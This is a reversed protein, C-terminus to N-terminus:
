WVRRCPPFRHAADGALIVRNGCSLFNEAVEAHMVWPKIDVVNIDALEQGVLKCIIEFIKSSFDELRQQPPYFPIQLVFEGERLDHAVLVGIAKENFIFFLMGPRENILYQGLEQSIFHVSILKQLDKEGKMDIGMLKRVTSGAGDTGVLFQCRINKQTSKGEGHFSAKVTVFDNSPQIAICEHGMQLQRESVFDDHMIRRENNEIHFGLEKLQECMLRTLKYQSFHAVSVPSVVHDFDESRMHDVSGIISGTLSTCYIFKQWFEVPPQSRLVEEALGDMKRFVEMSRNNIFHAQPHRSFDKNKELVACKVGLKTLLVSLALGVPGAGIILVPLIPDEGNTPHSNSLARQQTYKYRFSLSGLRTSKLYINWLSNRGVTGLVLLSTSQAM